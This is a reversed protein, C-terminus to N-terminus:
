PNCQKCPRFENEVADSRSAIFIRNHASMKKVSGCWAHHFIHSRLNGIYAEQDPVEKESLGQPDAESSGDAYHIVIGPQVNYCYVCFQIGAGGDGVSEAEMLVGNAVLNNGTFVPTVRYLVHMGTERIYDAAKNEWPLMGEVNLYRTGTILNRENAGEGSLQYGILHCRNYLYRDEILDDYRVTHWGSPRIMNIERNTDTPMLDQGLCAIATTCRGLSDLEGYSEYSVTTLDESTFYPVNGNVMCSPSGSYPPLQSIDFATASSQAPVAYWATGEQLWGAKGLQNYESQDITFFHQGSYPNYLRYVERGKSTGHFSIGEQKWGYGPLSDYERRDKTYFHEGSYPNYLRYVPEGGETEAIWGTGEQKWGHAPLSDYEERDTTFLHEGSWQNYLRYVNMRGAEEAKVPLGDSLCMCGAAAMLCILFRLSGHKM